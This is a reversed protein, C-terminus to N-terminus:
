KPDQQYGLPYNYASGANPSLAVEVRYLPADEFPNRGNRLPILEQKLFSQNRRDATGDQQWFSSSEFWDAGVADLAILVDGDPSAEVHDVMAYASPPFDSKMEEYKQFHRNM